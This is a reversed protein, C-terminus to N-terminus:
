DPLEEKHIEKCADIVGEIYSVRNELKKGHQATFRDGPAKFELFAYALIRHQSWLEYTMVSLVSIVSILLINYFIKIM